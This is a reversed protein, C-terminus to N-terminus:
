TRRSRGAHSRPQGKRAPSTRNRTPATKSTVRLEDLVARTRLLGFFALMTTLATDVMKSAPAGREGTSLRALFTRVEKRALEDAAAVYMGVVTPDFGYEETFGAARMDGWLAVLQADVHTLMAKGSRRHLTVAGVDRLKRADSEAKPNRERLAAVPVLKEEQGLNADVLEGLQRLVDADPPVASPDGELARRIRALPIRQESQLRRVTLIAKVHEEDYDAVNRASRRPEPLLGQRLYVRITERNVGTRQELERMKM